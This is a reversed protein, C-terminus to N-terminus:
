LINLINTIEHADHNSIGSYLYRELPDLISESVASSSFAAYGFESWAAFLLLAADIVIDPGCSNCAAIQRSNDM